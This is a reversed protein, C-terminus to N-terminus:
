GQLIDAECPIATKCLVHMLGTFLWEWKKLARRPTQLSEPAVCLGICWM